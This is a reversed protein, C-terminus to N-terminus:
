KMSHPKRHLWRALLYRRSPREVFRFALYAFGVIVVYSFWPDIADAHLRHPIDLLHLTIWANFHLLYLCFSAEGLLEIPRTSLIASIWHRGCLGLILTAFVPTVVGGHLMVYPVRPLALYFVAVVAVVAVMSMWMRARDSLRVAGHIKGLTIGALFIPLYPIPTYKLARLWFGYSYRDIHALGDPNTLLYVTPLVLESLWFLVFCLILKRASKPWWRGAILFPFALYLMAETSLTWAVTNWFTSLTPSWGQLLFPTAILGEFFHLHTQFHWEEYLMHLSVLLSLLYVPYLRALRALYFDKKDLTEARDGYNYALIFGSILLFFSIYTFGCEVIPKLLGLNPPTFHFLMIGLALFTRIGTLGPLPAKRERVVKTAPKVSVQELPISMVESM